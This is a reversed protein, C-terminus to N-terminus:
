NIKQLRSSLTNAILEFYKHYKEYFRQFHLNTLNFEQGNRQISSLSVGEKLILYYPVPIAYQKLIEMYKDFEKENFKFNSLADKIKQPLNNVTQIKTVMSLKDYHDDGFLIVPKRYFLAEFGTGGSISIIGQSKELIKQANMTPHLLKVNPIEMIKKYDKVSRWLKIKQLPHEKVYLISDIPIAKAITEIVSIQNTYFPTNLLISAEPESQLPFYLFKNDEIIKIANSDLFKQRKKLEFYNHLRYKIMSYKTKGFNIYTPELNNSLRKFYHNIKQSFTNIGSDFSSITKLIDTYKKDKLFEKDYIKISDNLNEKRRVFEESIENSTTNNSIFIHDKYHIDTPMLVEIGTKKALRYLLINSINEGAQQMLIMKPNYEDLIKKFFSLSSEVIVLIEERTFKHFYTWFKYFSREASIDLWLKLNFEDEIKKLNEIDFTSKGIYCEPYYLLKKFKVFNQKKFFSMDQKTTIIGIFDFKGLKSLESIVGLYFYPYPGFDLWVLITDKEKSLKEDFEKDSIIKEM